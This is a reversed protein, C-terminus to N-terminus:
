AEAPTLDDPDVVERHGTSFHVVLRGHATLETVIGATHRRVRPRFMGGIGQAARVRDGPEFRPGQPQTTAGTVPRLMGWGTGRRWGQVPGQGAPTPRRTTTTGWRRRRPNRTGNTAHEQRTCLQDQHHRAPHEVPTPANANPCGSIWRDSANVAASVSVVGWHTAIVAPPVATLARNPAILTRPMM